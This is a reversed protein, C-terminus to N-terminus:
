KPSYAQFVTAGNGKQFSASPHSLTSAVPLLAEIWAKSLGLLNREEQGEPHLVRMDELREDGTSRM